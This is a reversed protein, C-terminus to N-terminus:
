HNVVAIKVIVTQVKLIVRQQNSLKSAKNIFPKRLKTNYIMATVRDIYKAKTQLHPENSKAIKINLMILIFM